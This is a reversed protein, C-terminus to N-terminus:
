QIILKKSTYVGDLNINVIYIGKALGNTFIKYGISSPNLRGNYITQVKNGLLDILEINANQVINKINMNLQSIGETSPNPYLELDGVYDELQVSTIVSSFTYHLVSVPDIEVKVPFFTNEFYFTQNKENNVFLESLEYNDEDKYLKFRVPTKFVDTVDPNVLLNDKQIQNLNVYVDFKNEDLITVKTKIEFDPYGPKYVWQEFFTDIDVLPNVAKEKWADKYEATTISKYKFEELIEKLVRFFQEDGLNLRMQNHIISGKDYILYANTNFFSSLPIAYVPIASNDPNRKLVERVQREIVNRYSQPEELDELYIAETYSAGGENIWIDAWTACTMSNGFWHHGMEHVFGADQEDNLWYRNQTVMTQHEMGGYPFPFVSVTGYTAFPYTGYNDVLIDMMGPHTEMSKVATFYINDRDEPWFYHTSPITDGNKIYKQQLTDFVSAAFNMLYTAIPENNIWSYLVTNKLSQSTQEEIDALYGNSVATYGKPVLIKMSSTAKDYPRDNCPMWYRALEPESMSYAINHEVIVPNDFRDKNGVNYGKHYIHMGRNRWFGDEDDAIATYYISVNITDGAKHDGVYIKVLGNEVVPVNDPFVGNVTSYGIKMNAADFEISDVDSTLLVTMRNEGSFGKREEVPADLNSRLADKLDLYLDYHLVDYNRREVDGYDQVRNNKHYHTGSTTNEVDFHKTEARLYEPLEQSFSTSLTVVLLLLIIHKIM